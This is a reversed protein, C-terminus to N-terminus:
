HLVNNIFRHRLRPSDDFGSMKIIIEPFWSGLFEVLQGKLEYGERLVGAHEEPAGAGGAM